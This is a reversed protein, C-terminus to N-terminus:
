LRTVLHTTPNCSTTTPSTNTTNTATATTNTMTPSTTITLGWNACEAACSYLEGSTLSSPIHSSNRGASRVAIFASVKCYFNTIFSEM